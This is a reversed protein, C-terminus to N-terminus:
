VPLYRALQASFRGLIRSSLGGFCTCYPCHHHRTFKL